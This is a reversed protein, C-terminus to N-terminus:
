VSRLMGTVFVKIKWSGSSSKTSITSSAAVPGLKRDRICYVVVQLLSMTKTSECTQWLILRRAWGNSNRLMRM